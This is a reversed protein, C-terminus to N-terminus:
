NSLIKSSSVSAPTPRGGAQTSLIQWVFRDDQSTYRTKQSAILVLCKSKDLHKRNQRGDSSAHEGYVNRSLGHDTRRGFIDFLGIGKYPGERKGTRMGEAVFHQVVTTMDIM